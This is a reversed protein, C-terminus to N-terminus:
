AARRQEYYRLCESERGRIVRLDLLRGQRATVVTCQGSVGDRRHYIVVWDQTRGLEHARLSNSFLAEITWGHREVRLVPLWAEQGPNFRGPAFRRLEGLRARRRYERDIALLLDVPPRASHREGGV